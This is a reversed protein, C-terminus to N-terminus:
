KGELQKIKEETRRYDDSLKYVKAWAMKKSQPPATNADKISKQVEAFKMALLAPSVQLTASYMTFMSMSLM